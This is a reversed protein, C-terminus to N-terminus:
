PRPRASWPRLALIKPRDLLGEVLSSKLKLTEKQLKRHAHM